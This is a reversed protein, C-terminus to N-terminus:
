AGQRIAIILKKFLEEDNAIEQFLKRSVSSLNDSVTDCTKIENHFKSKIPRFYTNDKSYEAVSQPMQQASDYTVTIRGRSDFELVWVGSFDAELKAILERTYSGIDWGNTKVLNQRNRIAKNLLKM